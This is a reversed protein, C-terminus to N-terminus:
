QIETMEFSQESQSPLLGVSGTSATVKISKCFTLGHQLDLMEGKLKDEMMDTLVIHSALHQLHFASYCRKNRVM